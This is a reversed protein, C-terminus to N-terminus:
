SIDFNGIHGLSIVFLGCGSLICELCDKVDQDSVLVVQIQLMLIM